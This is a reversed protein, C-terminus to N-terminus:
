GTSVSRPRRTVSITVRENAPVSTAVWLDTTAGDTRSRVLEGGDIRLSSPDGTVVLRVTTSVDTDLDSAIEVVARDSRGDNGDVTRTSLHYSPYSFLGYVAHDANWNEPREAHEDLFERTAPYGFRNPDYGGQPSPTLDALRWGWYGGLGWDEGKLGSAATTTTVFLPGHAPQRLVRGLRAQSWSDDITDDRRLYSLVGVPDGRHPRGSTQVIDGRHYRAVRDEHTHGAFHVGVDYTDLLDRLELRNEGPWPHRARIWSPDHHALTVIAGRPNASRYSALDQRLWEFQEQRVQGGSLTSFDPPPFPMRREWDFTNLSVLHLDAGVDVSYYAPGFYAEWMALGDVAHPGTGAYDDFAYLDHNGPSFFSPVELRDFIRWADEYEYPLARPHVGFTLDGAVLVFDPRVVNLEDIVQKLAGWRGNGDSAGATRDTKEVLSGPDGAAADEAGEQIPRPDGVSPDAIVVVRPADLHEDVVSVARRQTDRGDGDPSTWSVQLDYLGAPGVDPPLEFTAATVTRGPWLGSTVGSRVRVPPGLPVPTRVHGFSPVLTASVDDPGVELDLEVRLLEDVTLVAPVAGLPRVLSDVKPDVDPPVVLGANGGVDPSSGAVPGAAVLLAVAPVLLALRVWRNGVLDSRHDM